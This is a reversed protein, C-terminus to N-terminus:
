HLHDGGLAIRCERGELLRSYTAGKLLTVVQYELLLHNYHVVCNLTEGLIIQRTLTVFRIYRSSDSRSACILLKHTGLRSCSVQEVIFNANLSSYNSSKSLM